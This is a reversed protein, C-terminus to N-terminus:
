IMKSNPCNHIKKPSNHGCHSSTRNFKLTGIYKNLAAKAENSCVVLDYFQHEKSELMMKKTREECKLQEMKSDFFPKYFELETSKSVPDTGFWKNILRRRDEFFFASQEFTPQLQPPKLQKRLSNLKV